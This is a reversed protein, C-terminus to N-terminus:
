PPGGDWDEKLFSVLDRVRGTAVTYTASPGEGHTEVLGARSLVKLNTVATQLPGCSLGALEVADAGRPGAQALLRFLRLRGEDGLASLAAAATPAKM